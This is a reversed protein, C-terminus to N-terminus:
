HIFGIKNIPWVKFVIKGVINEKSISGIESMRSDMSTLRHDGLVFYHGDPVQYPFSIDAEGLAKEQVYDEELITGDVSVNGEEDIYVWSGPTAIVRKILIKNGHYFAIIDGAQFTEKKLAVVIEDEHLTPSMSSGSIQLVPMVQTAILTAIAAVVILSYVTSKLIKIYKNKYIERKLEEEIQNSTFTQYKRNDKM